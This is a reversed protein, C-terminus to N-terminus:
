EKHRHWIRECAGLLGLLVGSGVWIAVTWRWGFAVIATAMLASGIVLWLAVIGRGLHEAPEVCDDRTTESSADIMPEIGMQPGSSITLEM